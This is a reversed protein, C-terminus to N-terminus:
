PADADVRFRVADAARRARELAEDRTPGTALVAGARDAGRRLPGFVHGPQRYVRVWRVGDVAEASEIGEVELLRGVPPVLFVVAAGRGAPVHSRAQCWSLDTESVSEGLAAQITLQNLDVGIAAKCLEADHGGGVRAAVEMVVPGEKGLRVQTYSPGNRIGVAEVAKRAAEAAAGADHVSPWVHALAVGFAPPEATLRDTVILPTFRGDVSFANVTLEPGEVLREVLVTGSRSEARATALAPELEARSRVLTLGRQGQRDPAKVVVPLEVDPDRPDVLPPHPVGGEAFVERQRAKSTAVVGTRADIPHRLGIREAVRAAIGVPWDAGPSVIGDVARARALRDIAEEDESSLVAREDALPFGPAGADRDVAIVQVDHRGRAAELLGLQAPGAGLVLLRPRAGPDGAM